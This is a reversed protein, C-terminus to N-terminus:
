EITPEFKTIKIDDTLSKVKAFSMFLSVIRNISVTVLVSMCYMIM